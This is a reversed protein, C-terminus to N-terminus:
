WCPQFTPNDLESKRINNELKKRSSSHQLWVHEWLSKVVTTRGWTSFKRPGQGPSPQHAHYIHIPTTCDQPHFCFYQSERWPQTDVNLSIYDSRILNLSEKWMYICHGDIQGRWNSKVGAISRQNSLSQLLCDLIRARRQEVPKTMGPHSDYEVEFIESIGIADFSDERYLTCIEDALWKEDRKRDAYNWGVNYADFCYVRHPTEAYMNTVRGHEPWLVAADRPPCIMTHWPSPFPDLSPSSNKLWRQLVM